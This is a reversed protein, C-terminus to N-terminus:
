VYKIIIVIINSNSNNQCYLFYDMKSPLYYTETPSMIGILKSVITGSFPSITKDLCFKTGWRFTHYLLFSINNEVVYWTVGQILINKSKLIDM